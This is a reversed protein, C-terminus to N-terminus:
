SLREQFIECSTRPNSMRCEDNDKLGNKKPWSELFCHGIILGQQIRDTQWSLRRAHERWKEDKNGNGEWTCILKKSSSLNCLGKRALLDPEENGRIDQFRFRSWGGLKAPSWWWGRLWKSGHFQLYSVIITSFVYIERSCFYVRFIRTITSIFTLKRNVM